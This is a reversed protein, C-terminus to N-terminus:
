VAKGKLFLNLIVALPPNSIPIHQHIDIVFIADTIQLYIARKMLASGDYIFRCYHIKKISQTIRQIKEIKFRHLRYDRLIDSGLRILLYRKLIGQM